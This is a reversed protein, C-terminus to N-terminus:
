NKLCEDGGCLNCLNPPGHVSLPQRRSVHYPVEVGFLGGSIRFLTGSRDLNQVVFVVVSEECIVYVDVVRVLGSLASIMGM